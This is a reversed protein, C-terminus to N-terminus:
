KVPEEHDCFLWVTQRAFADNLGLQITSPDGELEAVESVDPYNANLVRRFVM